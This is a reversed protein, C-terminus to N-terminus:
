MREDNLPTQSIIHPVEQFQFVPLPPAQFPSGEEWKCTFVSMTNVHLKDHLTEWVRDKPGWPTCTKTKARVSCLQNLNDFSSSNIIQILQTTSPPFSFTCRQPELSRTQSIRKYHIEPNFLSGFM